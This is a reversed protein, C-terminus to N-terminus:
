GRVQQGHLLRDSRLEGPNAWMLLYNAHSKSTVELERRSCTGARSLELMAMLLGGLGNLFSESISLSDVDNLVRLRVFLPVATLPRYRFIVDTPM